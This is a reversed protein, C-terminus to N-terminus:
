SGRRDGLVVVHLLYIHRHIKETHVLRDEEDAQLSLSNFAVRLTFTLKIINRSSLDSYVSILRIQYDCDSSFPYNVPYYVTYAAQEREQDKRQIIWNLLIL